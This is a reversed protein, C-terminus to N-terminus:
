FEWFNNAAKQAAGKRGPMPAPQKEGDSEDGLSWGRGGKPNGMGDGALKIRHNPGNERMDRPTEKASPKSNEKQSSPSEDYASWNAQMMNVAKKRDEPVPASPAKHADQTPSEDAMEFHPGYTKSRHKLNTINGLARPDPSQIPESGDDTVMHNKYLGMGSNHMAGRPRAGPRQSPREGEGDDQLEIQTNADRRAKGLAVPKAPSEDIDKDDTGWHRVDQHRFTKSPKPKQPTVFDEFAWQSRHKSKIAEFAVGAQPADSPDSGDVFDFHDYKTPHPKMYRTTSKVGEPSEPEPEDDEAKDFLRSPQFNKGAGIKPAVSKSPSQHEPSDPLPEDGLIEEFTRQRPRTGSFPSVIPAPEEDRPHQFSHLTAHADRTAHTSNERPRQVVQSPAPDAPKGGTKTILKIQDQNDRIPWNRGTKGIVELQKLLAGQDWSQQVTAIKGNSDFRVIHFVRDYLFQEDLGPLYAGGQDQFELSLETQVALAGQGEVVTIFEEGKKKILNRQSNLHKIIDTPGYFSTTTTIYHLSADQALASSNPAALFQKYVAQLAM